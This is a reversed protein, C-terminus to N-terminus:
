EDGLDEEWYPIYAEYYEEPSAAEYFVIDAKSILETEQAIKRIATEIEDLSVRFFRKHSNKKNIRRDQFYDHLKQEVERVNECYIMAHPYFPFPVSSNSLKRVSDRPEVREIRGIRYIDEDFSYRNSLIGIYGSKPSRYIGKRNESSQELQQNLEARTQELAAHAQESITYENKLEQTLQQVKLQLEEKQKGVSQEVERRVQELVKQRLMVQKEAEEKVKRAKEELQEKERRAKEELKRHENNRQREEKIVRKAESEERKREKSENSQQQASAKSSASRNEHKHSSDGSSQKFNDVFARLKRERTHAEVLQRSLNEIFARLEQERTLAEFAQSPRATSNVQNENGRRKRQRSSREEQAALVVGLVIICFFVVLVASM